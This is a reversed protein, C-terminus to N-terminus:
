SPPSWDALRAFVLLRESSFYRPNCTTLVLQRRRTATPDVIDTASDPVVKQKTVLYRFDGWFTELIIDDGPVLEDLYFFPQSHTTRHGSVIMRGRGGPWVAPEPTCLEDAPQNECDPYHGPGLDLQDSEVGEVVIFGRGENLDLKPIKIRFVPEGVAPDFSRPPSPPTRREGASALFNPLDNYQDNLRHQARQTAIGTGWLTWAVFLLVGVGVSVL